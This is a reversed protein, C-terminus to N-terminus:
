MVWAKDIRQWAGNHMVWAEKVERWAGSNWVYSKGGDSKEDGDRPESKILAKGLSVPRDVLTIICGELERVNSRVHEAIFRL